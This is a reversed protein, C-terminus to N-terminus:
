SYPSANKLLWVHDGLDASQPDIRGQFDDKGGYLFVLLTSGSLILGPLGGALYSLMQMSMLADIFSSYLLM